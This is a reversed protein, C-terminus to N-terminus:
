ICRAVRAAVESESIMPSGGAADEAAQELVHHACAHAFDRVRLEAFTSRASDWMGQAIYQKGLVVLFQIPNTSFTRFFNFARAPAGYQAYVSVIDSRAARAIKADHHADAARIAHLFADLAASGDNQDWHVFGLKYWAYAAVDGDERLAQQYFRLADVLRMQTFAEDGLTVWELATHEGPAKPEIPAETVLPKAAEHSPLALPTDNSAATHAGCACLVLLALPRM